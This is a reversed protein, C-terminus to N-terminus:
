INSDRWRRSEWVLQYLATALPAAGILLLTVMMKFPHPVGQEIRVEMAAPTQPEQWAAEFHLTYQGAPVAALYVWAPKGNVAAFAFPRSETGRRVAPKGM